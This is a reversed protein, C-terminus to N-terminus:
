ASCLSNSRCCGSRSSPISTFILEATGKDATVDGVCGVRISLVSCEARTSNVAWSYVGVRSKSTTTSSPPPALRVHDHNRVLATLVAVEHQLHMGGVVARIMWARSTRGSPWGTLSTISASVDRDISAAERAACDSNTAASRDDNDGPSM